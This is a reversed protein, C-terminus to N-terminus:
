ISMKNNNLEKFTFTNNSTRKLQSFCSILCSHRVLWKNWISSTVHRSKYLYMDLTVWPYLLLFMGLPIQLCSYM